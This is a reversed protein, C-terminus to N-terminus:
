NTLEYSDLKADYTIYFDKGGDKGVIQIEIVEMDEEKGSEPAFGEVFNPSTEGPLVTDHTGFHTTDNKDKLLVKLTFGTVPYESNNTFTGGMYRVGISNPEKMTIEYPLHDVTIRPKDEPEPSPTAADTVQQQIGADQDQDRPVSEGCGALVLVLVLAPIVWKRNM